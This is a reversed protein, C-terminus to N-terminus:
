NEKASLVRLDVKKTSCDQEVSSSFQGVLEQQYDFTLITLM